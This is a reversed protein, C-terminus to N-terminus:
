LPLDSEGGPIDCGTGHECADARRRPLRIATGAPYSGIYSLAKRRSRTFFSVTLSIMELFESTYRAPHVYVTVIPCSHGRMAGSTEWVEGVSPAATTTIGHLRRYRHGQKDFLLFRTNKRRSDEM